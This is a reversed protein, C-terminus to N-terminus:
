KPVKQHSVGFIEFLIIPFHPRVIHQSLAAAEASAGTAGTAGKKDHTKTLQKTGCTSPFGVPRSRNSPFGRLNPVIQKSLTALETSKGPERPEQPQRSEGPEQPEKETTHTQLSTTKQGIQHSM